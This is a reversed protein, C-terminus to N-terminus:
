GRALMQELYHISTGGVVFNPDELLRHHLAINTEIGDVVIEDLATRMRALASHRDEGFAILKGIM